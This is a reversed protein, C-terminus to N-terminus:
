GGQFVQKIILTHALQATPRFHVVKGGRELETRLRQLGHTERILEHADANGASKLADVAFAVFVNIAVLVSAVYYSIFFALPM